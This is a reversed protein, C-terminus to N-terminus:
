IATQALVTARFIHSIEGRYTCTDEVDIDNKGEVAM